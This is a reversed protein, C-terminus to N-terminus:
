GRAGQASSRSHTGSKSVGAPLDLNFKTLQDSLVPSSSDREKNRAALKAQVHALHTQLGFLLSVDEKCRNEEGQLAKLALNVHKM